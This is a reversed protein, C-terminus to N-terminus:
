ATIVGALRSEEDLVPLTFLNYKDFLEAVESDKARESCSVPPDVSLSGLPWESPSLALRALPVAGVLRHNDDVLYVTSVSEVGGEFNRLLEIADAVMANPSAALYDTTMRGAATDERHELLEEVEEREEPEMEELIEESTEDPLDGLLDAAADPDM